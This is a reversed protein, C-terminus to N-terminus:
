RTRMWFYIAACEGLAEAPLEAQSKYVEVAEIGWVPIDNLMGESIKVPMGDIFIKPTPCGPFIARKLFGTSEIHVGAVNRLVDFVDHPDQRDIEEHTFFKGFGAERRLYFDDFKSTYQLRDPKFAKGQVRVIELQHAAPTMTIGFAEDDGDKLQIDFFIPQYGIRRVAVVALDPLGAVRFAGEIDTFAKQKGGVVSVEAMPVPNGGTDVM